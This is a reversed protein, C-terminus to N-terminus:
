PEHCGALIPTMDAVSYLGNLIWALFQNTIPAMTRTDRITIVWRIRLSSERMQVSNCHLVALRLLRSRVLTVLPSSRLLLSTMPAMIASLTPASSIQNYRLGFGSSM